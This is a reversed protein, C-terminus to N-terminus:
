SFTKSTHIWPFFDFHPPSPPPTSFKCFNEHKNVNCIHTLVLITCSLLSIAKERKKKKDKNRIKKIM